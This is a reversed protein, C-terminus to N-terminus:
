TEPEFSSSLLFQLPESSLVRVNACFTGHCLNVFSQTQARIPVEMCGAAGCYAVLSNCGVVSLSPGASVLAGTLSSWVELTRCYVIFLHRKM